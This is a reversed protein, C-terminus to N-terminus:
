LEKIYRVIDELLAIVQDNIPVNHVGDTIVNDKLYDIKSQIYSIIFNYSM